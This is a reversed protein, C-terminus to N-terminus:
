ARLLKDLSVPQGHNQSASGNRIPHLFAEQFCVETAKQRDGVTQGPTRGDMWGDMRIFKLVLVMSVVPTVHRACPTCGPPPRPQTSPEPQSFHFTLKKPFVCQARAPPESPQPVARPVARSHARNGSAGDRPQLHTGPRTRTPPPPSSRRGRGLILCRHTLVYWLLMLLLRQIVLITVAKITKDFSLTQAHPPCSQNPPDQAM